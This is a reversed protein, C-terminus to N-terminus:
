IVNGLSAAVEIIVVPLKLSGQCSFFDSICKREEGEEVVMLTLTRAETNWMIVFLFIAVCFSHAGAIFPDDGMALLLKWM